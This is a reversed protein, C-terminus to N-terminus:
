FNTQPGEPVEAVKNLESQMIALSVIPIFMMLLCFLLPNDSNVTGGNKTQIISIKQGAKYGWYIGFINCTVIDLLVVMPGNSDGTAGSAQNLDDAIMAMWVLQFIGCTVLSLIIYLPVSRQSIKRNMM